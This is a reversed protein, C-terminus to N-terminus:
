VQKQFTSDVMSNIEFSTLYKTQYLLTAAAKSHGVPAERLEQASKGTSREVAQELDRLLRSKSM